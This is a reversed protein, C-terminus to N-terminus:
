DKTLGSSIKMFLLITPSIHGKKTGNTGKSKIRHRTKPHASVTMVIPCMDM